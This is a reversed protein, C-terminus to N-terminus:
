KRFRRRLGVAAVGLALLAMSTPEPIVQWEATAPLAWNAMQNAAGTWTVSKTESVMFFDGDTTSAFAVVYFDFSDPASYNGAAKLLKVGSGNSAGNDIASGSVSSFTGGLIADAVSSQAVQDVQFLYLQAGELASGTNKWVDGDKTPTNIGTVVWNIQAAQCFGAFLVAMLAYVVKKM